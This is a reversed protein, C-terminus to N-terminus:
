NLTPYFEIFFFGCLYFSFGEKPIFSEQPQNAVINKFPFALYRTPFLSLVVLHITHYLISPTYICYAASNHQHCNHGEQKRAYIGLIVSQRHCRRITTARLTEELRTHGPHHLYHYYWQVTKKSLPKSIVLKLQSDTLVEIDEM